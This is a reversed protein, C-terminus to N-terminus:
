RNWTALCVGEYHEKLYEKTDEGAKGIINKEVVVTVYSTAFEEELEACARDVLEESEAVLYEVHSTDLPRAHEENYRGCVEAFSEANVTYSRQETSKESDDNLGTIILTYEMDNDGDGEGLLIVNAYDVQEIPKYACSSATGAVICLAAGMGVRGLKKASMVSVAPLILSLPVDVFALYSPIIRHLEDESPIMQFWLCTGFALGTWLWKLATGGRESDTMEMGRAVHPLIAMMGWVILLYCALILPRIKIGNPLEMAGVIYLMNKEGSSLADMGLTITVIVSGIVGIITSLGVAGILMGRRRSDIKLYVPILMELLSFGLFMLGGRTMVSNITVNVGGEDYFRVYASLEAFDLNKLSAAFIIVGAACSFWFVAEAFRIIGVFGRRGMYVAALLLPIAIWLSGYRRLVLGRCAETLVFVLIGTKVAMRIGYIWRITVNPFMHSCEDRQREVKTYVAYLLIVYAFAICIMLFRSLILGNGGYHVPIITAAYLVAGTLM